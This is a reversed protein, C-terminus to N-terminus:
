ILCIPYLRCNTVIKQLWQVAFSVGTLTEEQQLTALTKFFLTTNNDLDILHSPSDPVEPLDRVLYELPDQTLAYCTGTNLYKTNINTKFVAVLINIRGNPDKFFEM